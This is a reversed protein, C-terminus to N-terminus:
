FTMGALALVATFMNDSVPEEYALAGMTEGESCVMTHEVVFM